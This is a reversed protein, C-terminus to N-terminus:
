CKVLRLVYTNVNSHLKKKKKNGGEGGRGGGGKKKKKRKKAQSNLFYGLNQFIYIFHGGNM